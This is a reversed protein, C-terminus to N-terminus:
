IISTLGITAVIFELLKTNEMEDPILFGGVFQNRVRDHDLENM